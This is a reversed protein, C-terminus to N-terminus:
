MEAGVNQKWYGDWNFKICEDGWSWWGAVLYRAFVELARYGEAGGRLMPEILTKLCPKRSHLDPVSILVRRTVDSSSHVSAGYRQKRGHLLVEYPKRWLADLPTVPEGHITTKLWIWEEVLEVGWCAFIGDEGLVLDRVAPKNTIWMGVLCGEDMLMDLDTDLILDRVDWLSPSTIYTSGATKHTRKVSRNPWPPDLLIFDFHKKTDQQQAQDSIAAHFPRSDACDGLYFSANPLVHFKFIPEHPDSTATLESPESNQNSIFHATSDTRRSRNEPDLLHGEDNGLLSLTYLDGHPKQSSALTSLLRDPLTTTAFESECGAEESLKRKKANRPRDEVFPRPLCWDGGFADRVDKLARHLLTQYEVHLEAHVANNDVKARASASKPENSPFPLQLPPSSLLHRRIAPKDREQAGAISGPVDILTVTSDQNQWLIPSAM